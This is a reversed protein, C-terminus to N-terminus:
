DTTKLLQNIRKENSQDPSGQDLLSSKLSGLLMQDNSAILSFAFKFAENQMTYESRHEYGVQCDEDEKLKRGYTAGPM